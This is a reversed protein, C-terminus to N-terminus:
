PDIFILIRMLWSGKMGHDLAKSRLQLTATKVCILFDFKKLIEAVYKDQSIFIGDEKQQVMSSLKTYFRSLAKVSKYVEQFMRIIFGMYSAFALFIRIAEIRAVPAFVEDYDIGEEQRYGDQTTDSLPTQNDSVTNVTNTSYARAPEQKFFCFEETCQAIENRFAKAAYMLEKAQEKLGKLSRLFFPNIKRIKQSRNTKPVETPVINELNFSYMNNQRPVRLIIQNEDPLKFEPSLVLCEFDSFLVKNKKDCM